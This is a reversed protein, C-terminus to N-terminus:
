DKFFLTGEAVIICFVKKLKTKTPTKFALSSFHLIRICIRSAHIRLDFDESFHSPDPVSIKPLLEFPMEWTFVYVDEV